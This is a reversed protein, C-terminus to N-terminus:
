CKSENKLELVLNGLMDKTEFGLYGLTIRMNLLELLLDYDRPMVNLGLLYIKRLIKSV